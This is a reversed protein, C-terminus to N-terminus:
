GDQGRSTLLAAILDAVFADRQEESMYVTHDLWDPRIASLYRCVVPRVAAADEETMGWPIGDGRDYSHDLACSAVEDALQPIDEYDVTCERDSWTLDLIRSM